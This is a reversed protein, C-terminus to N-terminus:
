TVKFQCKSSLSAGLLMMLDRRKTQLTIVNDEVAERVDVQVMVLCDFELLFTELELATGHYDLIHLMKVKNLPMSVAPTYGCIDQFWSPSSPIIM